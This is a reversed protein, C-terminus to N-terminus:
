NLSWKRWFREMVGLGMVGLSERNESKGKHYISIINVTRKM